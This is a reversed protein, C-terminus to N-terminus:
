LNEDIKKLSLCFFKKGEIVDNLCNVIDEIVEFIKCLM